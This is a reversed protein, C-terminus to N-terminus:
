QEARVYNLRTIPFQEKWHFSHEKINARVIVCPGLTLEKKGMWCAMKNNVLAVINWADYNKSKSCELIECDADFIVTKPEGLYGGEASRSAKKIRDTARERVYVSPLCAIFGLENSPMTEKNLLSFVTDTFTNDEKLVTFALKRFYLRIEEALERDEKRVKLLGPQEYPPGSWSELGLTLSMLTKNSQKKYMVTGDDATVAESYKLYDGNIRQAACALDLASQVSIEKM